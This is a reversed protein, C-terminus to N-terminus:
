KKARRKRAKPEEAPRGEELPNGGRKRWYDDYEPDGPPPGLLVRCARRAHPWLVVRKSEKDTTTLDLSAELSKPRGHEAEHRELFAAFEEPTKGCYGVFRALEWLHRDLYLRTALPYDRWRTAM